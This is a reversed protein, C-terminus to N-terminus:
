TKKYLDKLCQVIDHHKFQFGSNLLKSSDLKLDCLFINKAMEGPLLKLLFAPAPIYAPRKLTEAFAKTFQSNTILQPAAANYVGRMKHNKLPAILAEILDERSIWPLYQHGKGLTGGLGTMFAPKMKKLMGGEFDLVAGFRMIVRRVGNKELAESAKEWAQCVEALFGGGSGSSETLIGARQCGYFNAGSSSIFLDPKTECSLIANALTETASSRSLLIKDKYSQTWLGGAVNQGALHIVAEIGQLKKAKLKGRKPDWQIEKDGSVERRVLRFVDHNLQELRQCLKKGVFGSSGTVLVKM